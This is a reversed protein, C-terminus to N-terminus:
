NLCHLPVATVKINRPISQYGIDASIFIVSKMLFITTIQVRLSNYSGIVNTKMNTTGKNIFNEDCMAWQGEEESGGVGLKPFFIAM